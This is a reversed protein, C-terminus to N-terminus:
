LCAPLKLTVDDEDYDNSLLFGEGADFVKTAAGDLESDYWGAKELNYDGAEEAPIWYYINGTTMDDNMESIQVLGGPVYSECLIVISQIGVEVPTLNGGVSNLQAVPYEIAGQAVEGSYTVKVDDGDFDNSFLFGEGSAFTKTAAGDLESDYWGAKELNYDGAEEAPIWYYINGTTMDENMESIQVLGGPIYSESKIVLKQLEVDAGGVGVFSSIGVSNLVAVTADQYGVVQSEVAFGAMAAAVTAAFMFKKM